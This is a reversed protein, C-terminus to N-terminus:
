AFEHGLEARFEKIKAKAFSYSGHLVVTTSSHQLVLNIRSFFEVRLHIVGAFSHSMAIQPLIFGMRKM